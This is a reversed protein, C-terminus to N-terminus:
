TLFDTIIKGLKRKPPRGGREARLIAHGHSLTAWTKLSNGSMNQVMRVRNLHRDQHLDHLDWMGVGILESMHKDDGTM